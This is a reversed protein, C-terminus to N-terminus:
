VLFVKIGFRKLLEYVFEVDDEKIELGEALYKDKTFDYEDYIKMYDYSNSVIEYSDPDELVCILTKKEEKNFLEFM